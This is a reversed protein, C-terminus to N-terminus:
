QPRNPRRKQKDQTQEDEIPKIEFHGRAYFFAAILSFFAVVSINSLLIREALLVTARASVQRDQRFYGVARANERPAPSWQFLSVSDQWGRARWKRSNRAMEHQRTVLDFKFFKIIEAIL